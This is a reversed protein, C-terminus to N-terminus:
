KILEGIKQAMDRENDVVEPLILMVARDVPNTGDEIAQCKELQKEVETAKVETPAQNMWM